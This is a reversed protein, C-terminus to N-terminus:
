LGPAVCHIWPRSSTLELGMSGLNAVCYFVVIIEVIVESTM